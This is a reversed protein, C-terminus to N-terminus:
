AAGRCGAPSETNHLFQPGRINLIRCFVDLFMFTQSVAEPSLTYIGDRKCTDPTWPHMFREMRGDPIPARPTLESCTSFM